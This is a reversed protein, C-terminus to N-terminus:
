AESWANFKDKLRKFFSDGEEDMKGEVNEEDRLRAFERMLRKEEETLKTPTLVNITVRLNGRRNRHLHTAGLGNLVVESGSQTGPEIAIEQTGDFTDIEVETGLVAATMPVSLVAHLDDGVRRFVPDQAVVVEIYLDGSPGGAIGADAEGPMRLRMGSEVGAPVSVPVQKAGRIRGEGSCEACPTVIKTGYGQCSPCTTSTVMQGFLSNTTRQVTGSGHCETCTVPETNPAMMTGHCQPCEMATDVRITKDVGFVAEKLSIQMRAVLDGGRRVRSAPGRGAGAAGGFFSSFIDEFGGFGAGSFRTGGFGSGGGHLADEGGLDYMQRKEKNSLVEYAATVEKFKDAGEPGAVDPHLKRALKRYAKKIDAETADRPVGLIKYYDAM